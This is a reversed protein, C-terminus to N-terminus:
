KLLSVTGKVIESTLVGQNYYSYEIVYFYSGETAEKGDWGTDTSNTEFILTGWRNFINMSYTEANELAANFVDNIGDGNPTFVTPIIVALEAIVEITIQDSSSCGTIPDTVFLTVNYTGVNEYTINPPLFLFSTDGNGFDWIYNNNITSGNNFTIVLPANGLVTSPQINVFPDLSVTVTVQATDTCNNGDTGIVTYTTTNTPSFSVGDQVGNSWTYSTAGSGNLIIQGGECVVQPIGASVAPSPNITVTVQATDTCNNGDAGTVTYTTTSTASFPIGDQVGNDWTYSTAGSGNLVVQGGECVVQPTGASVAPNPNVFITVTDTNICGNTTGTLTYLQTAIPSFPVGNTITPTWILTTAGSGTLTVQDGTCITQNPGAVVAPLPNIVVNISATDSCGPTTMVIYYTGTVTINAPNAETITALSDQWYTVIGGTANNDIFSNTINASLPSCVTVNATTLNPSNLIPSVSNISDPCVGIGSITYTYTGPIMVLPDFNGLYGGTLTSPGSWSGNSSFPNPLSDHLSIQGPNLCLNIENDLSDPTCLQLALDDMRFDNGSPSGPLNNRIVMTITSSTPIFGGITQFIWTSFSNYTAIPIGNINTGDYIYTTFDSGGTGGIWAQFRYNQGSCVTYPRNYLVQGSTVGNQVNLWLGLAGNQAGAANTGGWIINSGPFNANSFAYPEIGGAEFNDFDVQTWTCQSYSKLNFCLLLIITFLISFSINQNKM